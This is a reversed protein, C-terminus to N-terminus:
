RDRRENSDGEPRNYSGTRWSGSAMRENLVAGVILVLSALYLWTLVLLVGGVVGYLAFTRANSAYVQFGASLLAWSVAAFVTGPLAEEFGVEVDPFLYYLPLFAVVLTGVLVLPALLNVVPEAVVSVLTTVASVAVIGTGIASLALVAQRIGGLLTLEETTGYVISFAHDIGRFVKLSSWLLFLAGVVTAGSRPSEATISEALLRSAQPTLFRETLIVVRDALGPGGVTAAVVLALLALPFLSVFAYYAVAAAAFTVAEERVGAIVARGLAISRSVNRNVAESRAARM